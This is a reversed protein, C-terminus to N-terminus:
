DDGCGRHYLSSTQGFPMGIEAFAFAVKRDVEELHHGDGEFLVCPRNARPVIRRHKPSVVPQREGRLTRVTSGGASDHISTPLHFVLSPGPQGPGLGPRPERGERNTRDM